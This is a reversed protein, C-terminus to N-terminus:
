INNLLSDIQQQKQEMENESNQISEDLTQTSKEVTEINEQLAEPTEKPEGSCAFFLGFIPIFYIFKKM